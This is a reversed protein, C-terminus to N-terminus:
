GNTGTRESPPPESWALQARMVAAHAERPLAAFAWAPLQSRQRHGQEHWDKLTVPDVGMHAAVRRMSWGNLLLSELGACFAAHAKCRQHDRFSTADAKVLGPRERELRALQARIQDFPDNAAM